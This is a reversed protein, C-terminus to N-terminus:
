GRCRARLAVVTAAANNNVATASAAGTLRCIWERLLEVHRAVTACFALWCETLEPTGDMSPYHRALEPAMGALVVRHVAGMFRLALASGRHDPDQGRLVDWCPGCIEVDAAAQELLFAYLSSGLLGCWEAQKRLCAAITSDPSNMEQVM